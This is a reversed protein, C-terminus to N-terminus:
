GQERSFGPPRSCHRALFEWKTLTHPIISGPLSLRCREDQNRPSPAATCGGNGGSPPSRARSGRMALTGERRLGGLSGPCERRPHHLAQHWSPLLEQLPARPGGQSCSGALPPQSPFAPAAM